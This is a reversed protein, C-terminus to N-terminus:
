NSIICSNVMKNTYTNHPYYVNIFISRFLIKYKQHPLTLPSCFIKLMIYKYVIICKYMDYYNVYNINSLRLAHCHRTNYNM